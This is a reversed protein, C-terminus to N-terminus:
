RQVKAKTEHLKPLVRNSGDTRASPMSRKLTDWLFQSAKQSPLVWGSQRLDHLTEKRRDTASFPIIEASKSERRKRSEEQVIRVFLDQDLNQKVRQVANM